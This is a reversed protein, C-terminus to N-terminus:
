QAARYRIQLGPGYKRGYGRGATESWGEALSWEAIEAPSCSALDIERPMETVVVYAGVQGKGIPIFAIQIKAV